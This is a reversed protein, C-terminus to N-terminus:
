DINAVVTDYEDVVPYYADFGSWRWKGDPYKEIIYYNVVTKDTPVFNSIGDDNIVREYVTRTEELVIKKEDISMKYSPDCHLPTIEFNGCCFIYGGANLVTKLLPQIVNDDFHLKAYAIFKDYTDIDGYRSMIYREGLNGNEDIYQVQPYFLGTYDDFEELYVVYYTADGSVGRSLFYSACVYQFYIIKLLENYGKGSKLYENVLATIEESQDPATFKRGVENNNIAIKSEDIIPDYSKPMDGDYLDIFQIGNQVAYDYVFTKGSGIIFYVSEPNITTNDDIGTVPVGNIYPKIVYIPSADDFDIVIAHDRYVAYTVYEETVTQYENQPEATDPTDADTSNVVDSTTNEM